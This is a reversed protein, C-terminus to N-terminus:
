EAAEQAFLGAPAPCSGKGSAFREWARQEEITSRRFAGFIGDKENRWDGIGTAIGAEDTLFSVIEENLVSANFRGTIKIAWPWFEGRYALNATRRMGAGIRVMDERMVPEPGYIRVLPMNCRAGALAPRVQVIECDLWLAGRVETRPIGKDKHASALLCKKICTVPLGYCQNGMSYLSEIFDQEPNRAAKGAKPAKVQVGLMELKAKQSWAHVILPTAGVLWLGFPQFSAKQLLTLALRPEEAVAESSKKRATAAKKTQKVM